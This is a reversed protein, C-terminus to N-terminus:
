QLAKINFKMALTSANQRLSPAEDKYVQLLLRVTFKVGCVWVSVCVCVCVCVCAYVDFVCLYGCFFLPLYTTGVTPVADPGLLTYQEKEYFTSMVFGVIIYEEFNLGKM